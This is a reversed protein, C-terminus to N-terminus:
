LVLCGKIFVLYIHVFNMQKEGLSFLLFINSKEKLVSLVCM